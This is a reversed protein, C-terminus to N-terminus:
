RDRPLWFTIVISIAIMGSLVLYGADFYGFDAAAGFLVPGTAGMTATTSRIVGLATGQVDSPLVQTLYSQTISGSGLMTGVLVTVIALGWIADIFPLALLGVVAGGHVLPISIRAGFRDYGVGAAPKVFVGVAFFLGFLVGTVGSSLDKVEILYTPYFATFTQWVLMYLFFVISVIVIRPTLIVDLIQRVKAMSLPEAPEDDDPTGPIWWWLLVAVLVLVPITYGLGAQWAIAVAIMGALPPLVTQGIDGAALIIGLASGMRDEYLSSLTTLRAITYISMGGGFFAVGLYLIPSVPAALVVFLGLLSIGMGIAILVREGYRDILAGAPTQGLAYALWIVTILLGAATLSLGFDDRLFPLIVPFIMRTGLLTGWGIAIAILARGRAGSGLIRLEEVITQGITM